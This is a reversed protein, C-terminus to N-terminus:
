EERTKGRNTTVTGTKVKKNFLNQTKESILSVDLHYQYAEIVFPKLCFGKAILKENSDTTPIFIIMIDM